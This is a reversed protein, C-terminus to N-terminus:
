AFSLAEERRWGLFESAMGTLAGDPVSGTADGPLSQVVEVAQAGTPLTPQTCQAGSPTNVFGGGPSQTTIFWDTGAGLPDNAQNVDLHTQVAATDTSGDTYGRLQFTTAFRQRVTFDNGAAASADNNNIEACFTGADNTMAGAVVRIGDFSNVGAVTVVNNLLTANMKHATNTDESMQVNIGNGSSNGHNVTNNTIKVNTTGHSVSLVRLGDGQHHRTGNGIFNNTVTGELTGDDTGGGAQNLNIAHSVGNYPAANSLFTPSAATGNNAINVRLTGGGQQAMTIGGAGCGTFTNNTVTQQVLGSSASDAQVCNSFLNSFANNQVTLNAVATGVMAWALGHNGNPAASTSVTSGSLTFSTLVGSVNVVHIQAEENGTVQSNTIASTGWVNYLKIGDERVQDGANQVTSGSLVFNTVDKGNIGVQAGGSVDVNTLTANTVTDLHVAANCGTNTGAPFDGCTSTSVTPDAGNTTGANTFTMNSLSIDRTNIFSAGRNTINQITGGTGDTASTGTVTLGTTTGTNNLVIGSAPNDATSATTNGAAISRFTLGGAGITTNAVNLATASTSNITNTGTVNVTGGSTAAPGPGTANFGVGTTTTIALGGSFSITAGTNNTLDIAGATTTTATIAGTFSTTGGTKSAVVVAGSANTQRITGNYTVNSTVATTAGNIHFAIGSPSTTAGISAAAFTVAGSSGTVIDIGADGGNLTATGNFNYTGDANNLLIGTGATATLTGAQFTITGTAHSTISVLRGANTKTISGSYTVNATVATTTGDVNFAIGSPSTTAGITTAAFTIAGAAGNTIDVGADGGNLTTTGSFNVPGDANALLIGTGSTATLTGTQFTITGSAQNTIDVLLQNNTGQTVNGSYTVGATSGDVRFATGSPSTIAV